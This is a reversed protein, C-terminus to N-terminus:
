YPETFTILVESILTVNCHSGLQCTQVGIGLVLNIFLCGHDTLFQSSVLTVNYRLGIHFEGLGGGLELKELLSIRSSCLINPWTPVCVKNEQAVKLFIGIIADIYHLLRWIDQSGV